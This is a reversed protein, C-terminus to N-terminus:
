RTTGNSDAQDAQVPANNTEVTGDTPSPSDANVVPDQEKISAPEVPSPETVLPEDAVLHAPDPLQFPLPMTMATGLMGRPAAWQVSGKVLARAFAIAAKPGGTVTFPIGLAVQDLLDKNLFDCEPLPKAAASALAAQHFWNKLEERKEADCGEYEWVRLMNQATTTRRRYEESDHQFSEYTWIRFLRAYHQIERDKKAEPKSEAAVSLRDTKTTDSTTASKSGLVSPIKDFDFIASDKEMVWGLVPLAIPTSVDEAQTQTPTQPPPLEDQAKVAPSFGLLSLAVWLPFRDITM